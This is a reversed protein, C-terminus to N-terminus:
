IQFFAEKTPDFGIEESDKINKNQENEENM